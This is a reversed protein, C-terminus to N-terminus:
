KSKRRSYDVDKQYALEPNLDVKWEMIDKPQCQLLQCIEELTKTSVDTKFPKGKEKEYISIKEIIIETDTKDPNNEKEEASVSCMRFKMLIEQGFINQKKINYTTIGKKELM